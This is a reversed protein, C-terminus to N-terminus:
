ELRQGRRGTAEDLERRLNAVDEGVDDVSAVAERITLPRGYLADTAAQDPALVTDAFAVGPGAAQDAGGIAVLDTAPLTGGSLVGVSVGSGGLRIRQAILREVDSRVIFVVNGKRDAPPRGFSGTVVNYVAPGTWIGTAADRALLLGRGDGVGFAGTDGPFILVGRAYAFAARAEEPSAGRTLVNVLAESASRLLAANDDGATGAKATSHSLPGMALMM